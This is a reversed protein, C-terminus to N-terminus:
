RPKPHSVDHYLRDMREQAEKQLKALEEKTPGPSDLWEALTQEHNLDERSTSM